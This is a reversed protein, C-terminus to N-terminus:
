FSFGIRAALLGTNRELTPNNLLYFGNGTGRIFHGELKAYFYQNFDLRGSIVADKSFNSPKRLDAAHQPHFSSYYSGLTLLNNVRYTGMAYWGVMNFISFYRTDPYRNDRRWEGSFHWKGREFDVYYNVINDANTNKVALNYRLVTADINTKARALSAGFTLGEVPTKWRLDLGYVPGSLDKGMSIGLDNGLVYLGGDPDLVHSGVFVQYGISGAKPSLPLSGYADVGTHALFDSKNDISYLSGPLLAWVHLPDIDQSDNYLGIPTKVKGARVGFRDNVKYDGYAWDVDVKQKGLKGLRLTHLQIGVRLKDSLPQGFNIAGETWDLTGNSSNATLYNNGSSYMLGQTLFGHIQLKDLPGSDQAALVPGLLVGLVTLKARL